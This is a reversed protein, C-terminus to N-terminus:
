PFLTSASTTTRRGIHPTLAACFESSSYVNWESLSQIELESEGL